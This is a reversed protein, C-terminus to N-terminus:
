SFQKYLFCEKVRLREYLPEYQDALVKGAIQLVEAILRPQCYEAEISDRLHSLVTHPSLDQKGGRRLKSEAESILTKLIENYYV